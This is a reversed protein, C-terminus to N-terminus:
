ICSNSFYLFCPMGKMEKWIYSQALKNPLSHLSNLPMSTQPTASAKWLLSLAIEKELSTNQSTGDPGTTVVMVKTKDFTIRLKVILIYLRLSLLILQINYFSHLLRKHLIDVDLSYYTKISLCSFIAYEAMQDTDTLEKELKPAQKSQNYELGTLIQSYPDLEYM